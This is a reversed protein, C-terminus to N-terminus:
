LYGRLTDARSQMDKIRTILPNLELMDIAGSPKLRAIICCAGVSAFHVDAIRLAVIRVVPALARRRYTSLVLVGIFDLGQSSVSLWM